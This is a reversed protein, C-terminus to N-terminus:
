EQQEVDNSYEIAKRDTVDTVADDVVVPDFTLAPNAHGCEKSEPLSVTSDTGGNGDARVVVMELGLCYTALLQGKPPWKTALDSKIVLGSM